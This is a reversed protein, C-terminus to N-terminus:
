FGNKKNTGIESKKAPESDTNKKIDGLSFYFM